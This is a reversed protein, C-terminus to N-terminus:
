KEDSVGGNGQEPNDFGTLILVTHLDTWNITLNVESFHVSAQIFAGYDNVNYSINERELMQFYHFFDERSIDYCVTYWTFPVEGPRPATHNYHKTKIELSVTDIYAYYYDPNEALWSPATWCSPISLIYHGLRKTWQYPNLFIDIRDWIQQQMQPSYTTYVERFTYSLNELMQGTNEIKDLTTKSADHNYTQSIEYLLDILVERQCHLDRAIEVFTLVDEHHVIQQHYFELLIDLTCLMSVYDNKVSPLYTSNSLPINSIYGQCYFQLYEPKRKTRNLLLGDMKSLDSERIDAVNALSREVDRMAQNTAARALQYNYDNSDSLYIEITDLADTFSNAISNKSRWYSTGIDAYQQELVNMHERYISLLILICWILGFLTIPSTHQRTRPALVRYVRLLYNYVGQHFIRYRDDTDKLLLGLRQWLIENVIVSYWEDTKVTGYFIEKTHGIWQPFTKQLRISRLLKQCKKIVVLIREKTLAHGRKKVEAAIAPLV